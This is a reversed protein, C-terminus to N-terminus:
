KGLELRLKRWMECWILFMEDLDYGYNWYTPQMTITAYWLFVNFELYVPTM